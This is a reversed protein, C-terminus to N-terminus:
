ERIIVWIGITIINAYLIIDMIVFIAAIEFTSIHHLVLLRSIKVYM